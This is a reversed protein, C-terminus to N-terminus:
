ETLRKLLKITSQPLDQVEDILTNHIPNYNYQNKELCNMLYNVIDM